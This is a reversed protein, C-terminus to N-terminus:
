SRIGFLDSHIYHNVWIEYTEENHDTWNLTANVAANILRIIELPTIEVITDIQNHETFENFAGYFTKYSRIDDIRYFKGRRKIFRIAKDSSGHIFFRALVVDGEQRKYVM